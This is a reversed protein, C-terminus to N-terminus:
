SMCVHSVMRARRLTRWYVSWGIAWSVKLADKLRIAFVMM